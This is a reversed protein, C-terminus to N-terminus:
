ADIWRGERYAYWRERDNDTIGGAVQSSPWRERLRRQLEQPTGAGGDAHAQAVRMFAGDSRPNAFVAVRPRYKGLPPHKEGQDM